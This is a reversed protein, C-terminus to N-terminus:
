DVTEADPAQGPRVPIWCGILAELEGLELPKRIFAEAGAWDSPSRRVSSMLIVPISATAPDAKLRRCLEVGGLVPLMVDALVLDTQESRVVELAERGHAAQLAQHGAEEVLEVLFERVPQEDDVVLITAV